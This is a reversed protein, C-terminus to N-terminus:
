GSSSILPSPIIKREGWKMEIWSWRWGYFHKRAVWSLVWIDWGHVDGPYANHIFNDEIKRKRATATQSRSQETTVQILNVHEHLVLIDFVGFIDERRSIPRRGGKGDPIWIVSKQAELTPAGPFLDAVLARAHKMATEGTGPKKSTM